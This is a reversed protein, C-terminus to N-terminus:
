QVNKIDSIHTLQFHWVTDIHRKQRGVLPLPVVAGDPTWSWFQM